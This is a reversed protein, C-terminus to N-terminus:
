QAYGLARVFVASLMLIGGTILYYLPFFTFRSMVLLMCGSMFFPRANKKSFSRRLKYKVTRRPIEGCILPDPMKETRTFLTYIEDIGVAKKGFSNLLKEAEPTLANCAIFFPQERYKRLILAVADASAPQMTFLPVCIEGDVRLADEECNASKGDATYAELLAARVREEKELALHLMLKDREERERKTAIKKQRKHCLLLTCVAGTGLAFLLSLAVTTGLSIRYYRLLGFSLFWVAATYFLIDFIDPLSLKRM